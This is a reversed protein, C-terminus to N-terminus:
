PKSIGKVANNQLRIIDDISETCSRQLEKFNTDYLCSGGKSNPVVLVIKDLNVLFTNSTETQTLKIFM